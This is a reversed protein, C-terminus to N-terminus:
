GGAGRVGRDGEVVHVRVGGGADNGPQHGSRPTASTTEYARGVDDDMVLAAVKTGRPLSDTIWNAWPPAETSCPMSMGTTWPHNEPDGWAPHGMEVFPHPICRRNLDDYVLPNPTGFTTIAFTDRAILDEVNSGTRAPDCGDDLHEQGFQRGAVGGEANVHAFYM